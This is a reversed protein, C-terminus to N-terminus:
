RRVSRGASQFGARPSAAHPTSSNEQEGRYEHKADDKQGQGPAALGLGLHGRQLRRPRQYPAVEKADVRLEVEELGGDILRLHLLQVLQAQLPHSDGHVPRVQLRLAPLEVQGGEVGHDLGHLLMLQFRNAKQDPRRREGGGSRGIGGILIGERGLVIGQVALAQHAQGLVVIGELGPLDPVLRVYEREPPGLFVRLSVGFQQELAGIGQAGM